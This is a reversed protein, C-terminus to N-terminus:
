TNYCQRGSLSEIFNGDLITNGTNEDVILNWKSVDETFHKNNLFDHLASPYFIGDYGIVENETGASTRHSVLEYKTAYDTNTNLPNQWINIFYGDKDMLNSLHELMYKKSEDANLLNAINDINYDYEESEVYNSLCPHLMYSPHRANSMYYFPMNASDTGSYQKFMSERKKFVDSSRLVDIETQKYGLEEEFQSSLTELM